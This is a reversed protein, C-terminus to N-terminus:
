YEYLSIVTEIINDDEDYIEEEYCGLIEDAEDFGCRGHTDLLVRYEGDYKSLEEILEKIVSLPTNVEAFGQIDDLNLKMLVNQHKGTKNIYKVCNTSANNKDSRISISYTSGVKKSVTGM